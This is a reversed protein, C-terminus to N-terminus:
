RGGGGGGGGGQIKQLVPMHVTVRGDPERDMEITELGTYVYGLVDGKVNVVNLARPRLPIKWSQEPDRSLQRLRRLAYVIEQVGSLPKEWAPAPLHYQDKRDFLLAHPQEQTGAAYVDFYKFFTEDFAEIKATIQQDRVLNQFPPYVVMSGGVKLKLGTELTEAGTYVYGLVEGKSDVISLARPRLPVYWSRGQYQKNLSNVARGIEKGSLPGVWDGAPLGQEDKRDFLLATSAEPSGASYVDFRKFFGKDFAKIKATAGQDVSLNKVEGYVIGGGLSTCFLTVIFLIAIPRRM